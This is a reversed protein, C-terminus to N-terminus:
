SALTELFVRLEPPSTFVHGVIGLAEAGEVNIRKNDIFVMEEPTIGLETLVHRYITESPKLDHLEASVFVDDFLSGVPSYRLPAGYDFGANSLVALRTGGAKLDAIVDITGPEPRLWAPFDAAWLEHVRSIPWTAGTDAAIAGWYDVVSQSGEDLADRHKEYSAWLAASEVGALEEIVRRYEPAPTRSIVEGYDFVVTRGPISLPRRALPESM